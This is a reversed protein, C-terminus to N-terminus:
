GDVAVAEVARSWPGPCLGDPYPVPDGVVRWERGGWLIRAGALPARYGTPMHFVADVRDGDPRRASLDSTSAPAVLVGAVEEAVTAAVPAGYPDCEGTPEPREVTVTDTPLMTGPFLSM